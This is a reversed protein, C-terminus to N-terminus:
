YKDNAITIGLVINNYFSRNCYTTILAKLSYIAPTFTVGAWNLFPWKFGKSVANYIVQATCENKVRRSQSVPQVGGPLVPISLGEQNNAFHKYLIVQKIQVEINEAIKVGGREFHVRYLSAKLTRPRAIMDCLIFKEPEITPQLTGM